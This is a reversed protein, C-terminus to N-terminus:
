EFDLDDPDVGLIDRVYRSVPRDEDDDEDDTQYATGRWDLEEDEGGGFHVDPLIQSKTPTDERQEQMVRNYGPLYVGNM